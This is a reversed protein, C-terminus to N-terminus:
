GFLVIEDAAVDSSKTNHQTTNCVNRGSAPAQANDNARCLASVVINLIALKWAFIGIAM